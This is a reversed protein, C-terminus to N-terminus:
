RGAEVEVQRGVAVELGDAAQGEVGQAAEGLGPRGEAVVADLEGDELDGVVRDAAHM